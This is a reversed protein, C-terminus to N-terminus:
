SVLSQKLEAAACAHLDGGFRAAALYHHPGGLQDAEGAAESALHVLADVDDTL